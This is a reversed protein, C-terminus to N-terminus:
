YGGGRRRLAAFSDEIGRDETKLAMLVPHRREEADVRANMQGSISDPDEPDGPNIANDSGGDRQRQPVVRPSAPATARTAPITGALM